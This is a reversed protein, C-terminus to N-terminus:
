KCIRANKRRKKLLNDISFKGSGTAILLFYGTAFIIAKEIHSYPEGASAIFAAVLMTFILPVAAYRTWLGLIILISCIVEAFVVLMLSITSGLGLPDLFEIPSDFLALLKRYGHFALMSGGLILRAILIITHKLSTTVKM